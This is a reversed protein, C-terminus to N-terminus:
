MRNEKELQLIKRKEIIKQMKKPKPPIVPRSSSKLEIGQQKNKTVDIKIHFGLIESCISKLSKKLNEKFKKLTSATGFQNHLEEYPIFLDKDFTMANYSWYNLYMVLDLMLPSKKFHSLLNYDFVPNHQGIILQFFDNSVRIFYGSDKKKKNKDWFSVERIKDVLSFFDTDSVSKDGSIVQKNAIIQSNLLKNIQSQLSKIQRGNPATESIKLNEFIEKYSNGLFVEREKTKSVESCIYYLLLRAHIGYPIGYFKNKNNEDYGSKIKLQYLFNNKQVEKVYSTVVSGDKDKVEKYPLTLITLVPPLTLLDKSKESEEIAFFSDEIDLSTQTFSLKENNNSM